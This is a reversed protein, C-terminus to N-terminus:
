TPSVGSEAAIKVAQKEEGHLAQFQLKAVVVEDSKLPRWGNAKMWDDAAKLGFVVKDLKDDGREEDVDNVIQYAHYVAKAVRRRRVEGSGILLGVLALIGTIAISITTPTLLQQWLSPSASEQAFALVPFVVVCLAALWRKM